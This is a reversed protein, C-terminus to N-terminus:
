QQLPRLFAIEHAAPSTYPAPVKAKTHRFKGIVIFSWHALDEIDEVCAKDLITPLDRDTLRVAPMQLHMPGASIWNGKASHVSGWVIVQQDLHTQSFKEAHICSDRVTTWTGDGMNFPRLDKRFEPDRRLRHLLPALGHSQAHRKHDFGTGTHRRAVHDNACVLLVQRHPKQAEVPELRLFLHQADNLIPEVEREWGVEENQSNTAQGPCEATHYHSGFLPARGHRSPGAYHARKGCRTCIWRPRYADIVVEPERAVDRAEWEEIGDLLATLM